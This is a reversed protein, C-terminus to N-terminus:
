FIGGLLGATYEVLPVVKSYNMRVPGIVALAGFVDMGGSYPATVFSLGEFEKVSTESGMYVHAVGGEISRDLIKVLLSKEEFAAFINRMRDFDDRFEPQELVNVKGEVYLGNEFAAAEAESQLAMVGVRYANKFLEDYLNKEKGMEEVLRARLQRVTLGSGISSLYNSIRELDLGTIDTDLRVLKTRVIGLSSVLLVMLGTRDMPLFRIHKITFSARAPLFVLGACGTLASLARSTGSLADEICDKGGCSRKLVDKDADRPEDHELLCDIYFRFGTDTPIRGASTHPQVLFGGAELEAMINRITAPSLGGLGDHYSESISKSGVPEATLVYEKVIASLIRRHRGSFGKTDMQKQRMRM